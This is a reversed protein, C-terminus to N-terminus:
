RGSTTSHRSCSLLWSPTVAGHPLVPVAQPTGLVQNLLTAAALLLLRLAALCPVQLQVLPPM